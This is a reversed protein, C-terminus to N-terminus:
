HASVIGVTTAAVLVAAVRAVNNPGGFTGNKRQRPALVALAERIIEQAVPLDFAAVTQLVAYVNLRQWHTRVLGLARDAYASERLTPHAGLVRVGHLTCNPHGGLNRCWGGSERQVGLLADLAPQLREDHANLARCLTEAIYSLPILGWAYCSAPGARDRSSRRAGRVPSKPGLLPEYARYHNMERAGYAMREPQGRDEYPGFFGGLDCPTILSGPAVGRARAYGPQSGLVALLYSAGAAVLEESGAADLDDLLNLVGATKIPSDALSGDTEQEGALDHVLAAVTEEDGPRDLGLRRRARTAPLGEQVMLWPIPDHTLM